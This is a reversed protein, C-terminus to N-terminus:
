IENRYIVTRLGLQFLDLSPAHIINFNQKQEFLGMLGQNVGTGQSVREIWTFNIFVGAFADLFTFLGYFQGTGSNSIEIESSTTEPEGGM